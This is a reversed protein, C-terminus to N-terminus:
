VFGREAESGKAECGGGVKPRVRGDVPEVRGCM